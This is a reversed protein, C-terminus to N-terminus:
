CAMIRYMASISLTSAQSKKKERIRGECAAEESMKSVGPETM